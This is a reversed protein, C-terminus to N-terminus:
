PSYTLSARSAPGAPASVNTVTWTTRRAPVGDSSTCAFRSRKRFRPSRTTTALTSKQGRKIEKQQRVGCENPFSGSLRLRRGRATRRKRSLPRAEGATRLQGGPPLVGG